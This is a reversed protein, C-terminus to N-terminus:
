RMLSCVLRWSGGGGTSQRRMEAVWAHNTHMVVREESQVVRPPTRPDDLYSSLRYTLTSEDLNQPNLLIDVPCPFPLSLDSGDM